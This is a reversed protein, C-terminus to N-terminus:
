TMRCFYCNFDCSISMMGPYSIFLGDTAGKVTVIAEEEAVAKRRSDEMELDNAARAGEQALENFGGLGGDAEGVIM